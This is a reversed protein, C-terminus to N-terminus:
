FCNNDDNGQQGSPRLAAIQAQVQARAKQAANLAIDIGTIAHQMEDLATHALAKGLTTAKIDALAAQVHVARDPYGHVHHYHVRQTLHSRLLEYADHALAWAQRNIAQEVARPMAVVPKGALGHSLLAAPDISPEPQPLRQTAAAKIQSEMCNFADIYAMKFQLAKAGTFGMALLAFGDRTLRYMPLKRGTSDTYDSGAFNRDTFDAPLQSLLSRIRRLVDDHLKAFHRAVDLSTTTPQGNVVALDLAVACVSALTEAMTPELQDSAFLQRGVEVNPPLGFPHPLRTVAPALGCPKRGGMRAALVPARFSVAAFRAPSRSTDCRDIPSGCGIVGKHPTVPATYGMACRPPLTTMTCASEM